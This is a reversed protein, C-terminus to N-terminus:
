AISAFSAAGIAHDEANQTLYLGAFTQEYTSLVRSIAIM